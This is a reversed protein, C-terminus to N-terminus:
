NGSSAKSIPVRMEMKCKLFSLCQSTLHSLGFLCQHSSTISVPNLGMDPGLTRSKIAPFTTQHHYLPHIRKLLHIRLLPCSSQFSPLLAILPHNFAELLTIFAQHPFSLLLIGPSSSRLHILPALDGIAYPPQPPVSDCIVSINSPQRGLQILSISFSIQHSPSSKNTCLGRKESTFSDPSFSGQFTLTDLCIDSNIYGGSSM